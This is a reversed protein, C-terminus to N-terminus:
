RKHDGDGGHGKGRLAFAGGVVAMFIANVSESPQYDNFRVMGAIINAAWIVTVVAIIITATRDSIV